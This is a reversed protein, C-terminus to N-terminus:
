QGDWSARYVIDENIRRSIKRNGSIGFFDLSILTCEINMLVKKASISISVACSWALNALEQRQGFMRAISHEDVGNKGRCESAIFTSLADVMSLEPQANLTAFSWLINAIEQGRFKNRKNRLRAVVANEAEKFFGSHLMGMTSYAWVTNSLDQNSFRDLGMDMGAEAARVFLRKIVDEGNDLCSTEYVALRGTSVLKVSDGLTEIVELSM